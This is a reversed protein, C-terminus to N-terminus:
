IVPYQKCETTQSVRSFAMVHEKDTEEYHMERAGTKWRFTLNAYGMLSFGFCPMVSQEYYGWWESWRGQFYIALCIGLITSSTTFVYGCAGVRDIM